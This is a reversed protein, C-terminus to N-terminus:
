LKKIGAVKRIQELEEANPTWFKSVAKLLSAVNGRFVTQVLRKTLAGIVENEDRATYRHGIKGGRNGRPWIEERTVLGKKTMTQLQKLVTTYVVKKKWPPKALIEHVQRTTLDGHEWLIQMLDIEAESPLPFKMGSTKKMSM